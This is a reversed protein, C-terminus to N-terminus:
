GRGWEAQAGELPRCVFHRPLRVEAQMREAEAAVLRCLSKSAYSTM